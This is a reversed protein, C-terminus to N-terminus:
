QELQRRAPIGDVRVAGSRLNLYLVIAENVHAPDAQKQLITARRERNAEIIEAAGATPKLVIARRNRARDFVDDITTAARLVGEGNGIPATMILLYLPGPVDPNAM